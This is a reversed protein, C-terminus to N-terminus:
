QPGRRPQLRARLRRPHRRHRLGARRRRLAHRRRLRVQVRPSRGFVVRPFFRGMTLPVVPLRLSHRAPVHCIRSFSNEAGPAGSGSTPGADTMVPGVTGRPTAQDQVWRIGWGWDHLGDGDEDSGELTFSWTPGAALLDVSYTWRSRPDAALHNILYGGAITPPTSTPDLLDHAESWNNYFSILAGFGSLAITTAGGEGLIDPSYYEFRFCDIRTPPLDGSNVAETRLRDNPIGTCPNAGEPNDQWWYFGHPVSFADWVLGYRSRPSGPTRVDTRPNITLWRSTSPAARFEADTDALQGLASFALGSVALMALVRTSM